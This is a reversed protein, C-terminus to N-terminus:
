YKWLVGISPVLPLWHRYERELTLQGGPYDYDFDTCCQNRQNFANTVEAFV